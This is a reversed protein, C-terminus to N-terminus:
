REIQVGSNSRPTPTFEKCFDLVHGPLSATVRDLVGSPNGFRQIWLYPTKGFTYFATIEAVLGFLKM